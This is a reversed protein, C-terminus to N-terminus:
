EGPTLAILAPVFDEFTINEVGEGLTVGTLTVWNDPVLQGKVGPRNGLTDLALTQTASLSALDDPFTGGYIFDEVADFADGTTLRTGSSRDITTARAGTTGSLSEAAASTM